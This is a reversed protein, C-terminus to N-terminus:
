LRELLLSSNEKDAMVDSEALQKGVGGGDWSRQKLSILTMETVM